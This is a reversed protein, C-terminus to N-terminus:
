FATTDEALGLARAGIQRIHARHPIRAETVVRAWRTAETHIFRAREDRTTPAVEIVRDTLRQRIEPM